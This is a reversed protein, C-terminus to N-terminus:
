DYIQKNLLKQYLQQLNAKLQRNEILTVHAYRCGSGRYCNGALYYNCIEKGKHFLKPRGYPDINVSSQPKSYPTTLIRKQQSHYSKGQSTDSLYCMEISHLSSGCVGCTNIARGLCVLSYLKEDRISWDVILSKTLKVAAVKKAFAKHYEYFINGKFKTAMDIVDQLFTDLEVRRHCCEESPGGCTKLIEDQSKVTETLSKVNASLERITNKSIDDNVETNDNSQM